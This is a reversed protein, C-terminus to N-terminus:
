LSFWYTLKTLLVRDSLPLSGYEYYYDRYEHNEIVDSRIENYVVYLTSKANLYYSLVFNMTNARSLPEPEKADDFLRFQNYIRATFAPSFSYELRTVLLNKTEDLHDSDFYERIHQLSLSGSLRNNPKFNIGSRLTWDRGWYLDGYDLFDGWSTSMDFSYPLSRDTNFSLSYGWGRYFRSTVTTSYPQSAWVDYYRTDNLNVKADLEMYNMGQLKFEAGYRGHTYNGSFDRSAQSSTTLEIRRIGHSEPRPKWGLNWGGRRRDVQTIYGVEGVDFSPGLYSFEAGYEWLDSRLGGKFQGAWDNGQEGPNISRAVMGSLYHNSQARLDLDVGVARQYPRDGGGSRTDKSVALLGINSRTLIDRNLRVVAYNSMPVTGEVTGSDYAIAYDKRETISNIFGIEWPGARGTVKAGALMNVEPGNFIQKGIRRSYFINIPTRFINQGEQFFPRLERFFREYRTVNIQEQDPAIQGFDPNLTVDLSLNSTLGYKIDLGMDALGERTYGIPRPSANYFQQGSAKAYPMLELAHGPRLEHLDELHGYRDVRGWDDRRWGRWSLDEKTRQIERNFNIGFTHSEKPEFRLINFPIAIEAFWGRDTIRTASRWVGDWNIDHGYTDTQVNAAGVMFHYANRHDHYPDLDVQVKDSDLRWSDRNDLRAVIKEPEDDYNSFAIYLHSSTYLVRVETRQSPAAGEIPNRATFDSVMPASAWEEPDIIGDVQISAPAEVAAIHTASPDEHGPPDDPGHAAASGRGLVHVLLLLIPLRISRIRM